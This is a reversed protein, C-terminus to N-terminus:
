SGFMKGMMSNLGDSVLDEAANVVSDLGSSQLQNAISKVKTSIARLLTSIAKILKHIHDALQEMLKSLSVLRCMEKIHSVATELSWKGLFSDITSKSRDAFETCSQVMEQCIDVKDPINSMERHMTKTASIMDSNEIARTAMELEEIDSDIDRIKSGFSEMVEGDTDNTIGDIIIQPLGHYEDGVMKAANKMKLAAEEMGSNIERATGMADNMSRDRDGSLSKILKLAEINGMSKTMRKLADAKESADGCLSRANVVETLSNVM